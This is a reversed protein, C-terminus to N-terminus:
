FLGSISGIATDALSGIAKYKNLKSAANASAIANNQTLNNDYYNNQSGLSALTGIDRASSLANANAIRSSDLAQGKFISDSALDSLAQNHSNQLKAMTNLYQSNGVGIGRNILNEDLASKQNAFDQNLKNSANQYFKDAGSVSGLDSLIKSINQNRLNDNDSSTYKKSYSGDPNKVFSLNGLDSNVGYNQTKVAKDIDYNQYNPTGAGVLSGVANVIGSM